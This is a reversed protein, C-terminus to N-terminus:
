RVSKITNSNPVSRITRQRQLNQLVRSRSNFKSSAPVSPQNGGQNNPQSTIQRSSPLTGQLPVRPPLNRLNNRNFDTGLPNPALVPLGPQQGSPPTLFPTGPRRLQGADPACIQGAANKLRDCNQNCTSNDQGSMSQCSSYCAAVDRTAQACPSLNTTSQRSGPPSQCYQQTRAQWTEDPVDCVSCKEPLPANVDYLMQCSFVCAWKADRVTDCFSYNNVFCGIPTASCAKDTEALGRSLYRFCDDMSMTSLNAACGTFETATKQISKICDSMQQAGPANPTCQPAQAAAPSHSALVVFAALLILAVLRTM